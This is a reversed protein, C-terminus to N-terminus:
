SFLCMSGSGAIYRLNEIIYWYFPTILCCFPTIYCCWPTINTTTYQLLHYILPISIEAPQSPSAAMSLCCWCWPWWCIIPLPITSTNGLDPWKPLAVLIDLFFYTSTICENHDMLFFVWEPCVCFFFYEVEAQWSTGLLALFWNMHWMGIAIKWFHNVFLGSGNRGNKQAVQRRSDIHNFTNSRDELACLYGVHEWHERNRHTLKTRRESWINIRTQVPLLAACKTHGSCLFLTVVDTNCRQASCSDLSWFQPACLYAEHESFEFTNEKTKQSKIPTIQMHQKTRNWRWHM